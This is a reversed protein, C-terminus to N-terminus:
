TRATDRGFVYRLFGRAEDVADIYAESLLQEGDFVLVFGRLLPADKIDMDLGNETLAYVPLSADGVRVHVNSHDQILTSM